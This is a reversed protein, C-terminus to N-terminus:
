RFAESAGIPDGLDDRRLFGVGRDLDGEGCGKFCFWEELDNVLASIVGADVTVGDLALEARPARHQEHPLAGPKSCPGLGGIWAVTPM